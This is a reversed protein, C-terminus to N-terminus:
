LWARLICWVPWSCLLTHLKLKLNVKFASDPPMVESFFQKLRRARTSSGQSSPFHELLANSVTQQNSASAAVM